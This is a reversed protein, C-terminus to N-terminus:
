SAAAERPRGHGDSRPRARSLLDPILETLDEVEWRADQDAGPGAAWGEAVSIHGGRVNFVRGTIAGAEPSTLWVVLPAINAPHGPDFGTEEVAAQNAALYHALSETMRTMASPAIANVKIGYRGLEDAAIITLGALAAKAAGYNAQGVNGYLGSPSSTNVIRADPVDGAKAKARWYDIAHRTPAFTGRLHVRMVADWEDVTMNVLMRDRLIGANNILADITGFEHVATDIVRKAGDWDSVDDTNAVAEGGLARIEDVVQQAPAASGELSDKAVGLDNVVVKAGQRASELAEERGIGRGAGTIVVVRGECIGSM